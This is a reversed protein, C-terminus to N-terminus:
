EVGLQVPGAPIVLTTDRPQLMRISVALFYTGAPISDGMIVTPAVAPTKIQRSGNAPLVLTLPMWKCGGPRGNWYQLQNWLPPDSYSASAYVLLSQACVGAYEMSFPAPWLNHLTAVGFVDGLANREFTAELRLRDLEHGIPSLLAEDSSCGLALLCALLRAPKSVM